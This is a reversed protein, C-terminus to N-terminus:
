WTLARPLTWSLKAFRRARMPLIMQYSRRDGFRPASEAAERFPGYFGSCYKAAYSMIAIDEFGAGDLAKRIAGVRGDM